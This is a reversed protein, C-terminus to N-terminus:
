KGGNLAWRVFHECNNFILNYKKEHLKSYARNIVEDKNYLRVTDIVHITAGKAFKEISDVKVIGDQYHIVQNENLSLAHHSYGLCRNVKLHCAYDFESYFGPTKTGPSLVSIKGRANNYTTVARDIKDATNGLLPAEDKWTQIIDRKTEAGIERVDRIFEKNTASIDIVLDKINSLFGM